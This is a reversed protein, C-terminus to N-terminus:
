GLFGDDHGAWAGGRDDWVAGDGFEAVAEDEDLGHGDRQVRGVPFGDIEARGLAGEDPAVVGADDLFDPVADGLIQLLAVPDKPSGLAVIRVLRLIPGKRLVDDHLPVQHILDRVIEAELLRRSQPKAQHRDALAHVHRQPKRARLCRDLLCDRDQDVSSAGRSPRQCDLKRFQLFACGFMAYMSMLQRRVNSRSVGGDGDAGEAVEVEDLLSTGDGSEVVVVRFAAALDSLVGVVAELQDPVGDAQGAAGHDAGLGEGRGRPALVVGDQRLLRRALVDLRARGQRVEEEALRDQPVPRQALARLLIEPVCRLEQRQRRLQQRLALDLRV